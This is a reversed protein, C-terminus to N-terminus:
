RAFFTALTRQQVFYEFVASTEQNCRNNELPFNSLVISLFVAM